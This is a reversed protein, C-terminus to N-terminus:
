GVLKRILYNNLKDMNEGFFLGSEEHYMDLIEDVSSMYDSKSMKSLCYMMHTEEAKQLYKIFIKENESITWDVEGLVKNLDNVDIYYKSETENAFLGYQYGKKNVKTNGPIFRKGEMYEEVDSMNYSEVEKKLVKVAQKLKLSEFTDKQMQNIEKEFIVIRDNIEKVAEMDSLKMRKIERITQFALYTGIIIYPSSKQITKFIIIKNDVFFRGIKDLPVKM